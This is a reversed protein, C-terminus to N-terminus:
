TCAIRKSETFGSEPGDEPLLKIVRAPVLKKPMEPNLQRKLEESDVVVLKTDDECIRQRVGARGPEPIAETVTWTDISRITIDSIDLFNM